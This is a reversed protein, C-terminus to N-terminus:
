ESSSLLVDEYVARAEHLWDTMRDWNAEDNSDIRLYACAYDSFKDSLKFEDHEFRNALAERLPELYNAIVGQTDSDDGSSKTLYVGVSRYTVYMSIQFGTDGVPHYIYSSAYNTRGDEPYRQAVHNWFKQRFLGIPSLVTGHVSEKVDRDWENPKELVEFIPAVPSDAIRVARVRIAFFAFPDATHDNLWRIASLHAEGFGKAVWIVIHANLGALYALVQGLHQLDAAELQNEIMVVSDSPGRAVIDAKLRNDPSIQVEEDVYELDIGVVNSIYDLNKALWPTFHKDEKEWVDRLEAEDLKGLEINM